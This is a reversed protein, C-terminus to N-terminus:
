KRRRAMIEKAEAITLQTWDIFGKDRPVSRITEPRINDKM